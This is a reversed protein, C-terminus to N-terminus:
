VLSLPRPSGSIGGFDRDRVHKAAERLPAPAIRRFALAAKDGFLDSAVAAREAEPVFENLVEQIAMIRQDLPLAQLESTTLNLRQLAGAASGSGAAAESLRTTLLNTAQEIESSSM